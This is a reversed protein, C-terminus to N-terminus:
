MMKVLHVLIKTQAIFAHISAHNVLKIRNMFAKNVNVYIRLIEKLVIMVLYVTQLMILVLKVNIIVIKANPVTMMTVLHALVIQNEIALISARYALLLIQVTLAHTFVPNVFQGEMIM